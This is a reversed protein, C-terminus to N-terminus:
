YQRFTLNLRGPSLMTDQLLKKPASNPIISSVGHFIRRSVGGFIVVDGSDLVAKEVKDVDRHDGYIFEASDGISFSVVPLGKQISEPTEDHDKHLGLRGYNNYFNVICIDPSMSPLIREAYSVRCEKRILYQAEQIAEVVLKRFREPISPPNSGDVLRKNGYKGTQPDWDLGLCMMHLRLKAGNAYSPRYFGGPGLGLERCIKVIKVQEDHTLFKKLLVMGPRLIIREKEGEICIEKNKEQPAYRKGNFCIDFQNVRFSSVPKPKATDSNRKTSFPLSFNKLNLPVRITGVMISEVTNGTLPTTVRHKNTAM